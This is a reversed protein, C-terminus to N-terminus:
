ARPSADLVPAAESLAFRPHLLPHRVEACWDAIIEGHVPLFKFGAGSCASVLLVHQSAPHHDYVFDGGRTTTYLCTKSQMESGAADPLHESLFARMQETLDPAPTNTRADPDVVPGSLHLGIKVGPLHFMPFGYAEPAQWHIFLPFREPTFLEPRSPRFFVVQEQTVRFRGALEPVLRPLWAGAAVVLKEASFVGRATHVAPARPDSLDLHVAPTHDLLVGGLVRTMAALLELTLSPNVIGAEPSFVAQWDDRPRWQAFRKALAAADLVDFAAGQEQLNDQIDGLVRSDATSIDLLGTPWYLRTAYDAQFTQWLSLARSAMAAYEKHPQSLRFIRSPGASSGREHGFAFQELVLVDQGRRALEHAGALGAMGGGVIITDYNTRM